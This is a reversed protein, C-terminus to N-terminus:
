DIPISEWTFRLQPGNDQLGRELYPPCSSQAFLLQVDAHRLMIPYLTLESQHEDNMDNVRMVAQNIDPAEIAVSSEAKSMPVSGRLVCKNRLKM